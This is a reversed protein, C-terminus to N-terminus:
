ADRHRGPADGGRRRNTVVHLRWLPAGADQGAAPSGAAAGAAAARGAGDVARGGRQRHQVAAALHHVEQLARMQAVRCLAHGVEALHVPVADEAEQLLVAGVDNRQARGMQRAAQQAVRQNFCHM